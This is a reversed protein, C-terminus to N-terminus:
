SGSRKVGKEQSVMRSFMTGSLQPSMARITSVVPNTHRVLRSSVASPRKQALPETSTDTSYM